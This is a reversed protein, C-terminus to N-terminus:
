MQRWYLESGGSSSMSVLRSPCSGPVFTVDRIISPMLQYYLKKTEHVVKKPILNEDM